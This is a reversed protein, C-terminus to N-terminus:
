KNGTFEAFFQNLEDFDNAFYRPNRSKLDSSSHYGWGVGAAHADANHAMDIDYTTDGVMLTDEPGVGTEAMAQHIMAPHPKSPADDATQITSFCGQLQHYDLVRRVGRQAKGTAIGLTIGPTDVLRLVAERAGEYMSETHQPDAIFKHFVERYTNVLSVHTQEGADPALVRMAEILSLGVISLTVKRDPPEMRELTYAENMAAVLVNQSDVLTGDCDFIVLKEGSM